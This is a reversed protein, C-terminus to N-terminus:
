EDALGAGLNILSSGRFPVPLGERGARDCRRSGLGEVVEAEIGTGEWARLLSAGM